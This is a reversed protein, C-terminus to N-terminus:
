TQLPSHQRKVYARVSYFSIRSIYELMDLIAFDRSRGASARGEEIQLTNLHEIADKYTRAAIKRSDSPM